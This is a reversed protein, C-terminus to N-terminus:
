LRHIDGIFENDSLDYAPIGAWESSLLAVLNDIWKEVPLSDVREPDDGREKMLRRVTDPNSRYFIVDPKITQLNTVGSFGANILAEVASATERKDEDSSTSALKGLTYDSDFLHNDRAFVTKGSSPFGYILQGKAM